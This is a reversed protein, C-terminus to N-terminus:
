RDSSTTSARLLALVPFMRTFVDETATYEDIAHPLGRRVFWRETAQEFTSV